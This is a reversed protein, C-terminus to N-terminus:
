TKIQITGNTRLEIIAVHEFSQRLQLKYELAHEYQNFTKAYEFSYGNVFTLVLYM